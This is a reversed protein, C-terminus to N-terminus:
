TCLTAIEYVNPKANSLYVLTPKKSTSLGAKSLTVCLFILMSMDKNSKIVEKRGIKQVFLFSYEKVLM